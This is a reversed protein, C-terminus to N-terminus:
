RPTRSLRRERKSTDRLRKARGTTASSITTEPTPAGDDRAYLYKGGKGRDPGANGMDAVEAIAGHHHLTCRVGEAHDVVFELPGIRTAVRNPTTISAPIETAMKPPTENPAVEPVDKLWDIDGPQWTKDFWPELPGYLRLIATWGKGPTTQIWNSERGAPAKPGFYVDTSGDANQEVETQSSLRPFRADTQLMSRTQNDYLVLSWFDKVPVNPPLRLRYTKGGDFPKGESDFTAGAYQSGVGVMKAAM